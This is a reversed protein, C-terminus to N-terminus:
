LVETEGAQVDIVEVESASVEYAIRPEQINNIIKNYQRSQLRGKIAIHTGTPYNSVEVANRSWFIVPLYDSKSFPRNVAICTDTLQRGLPTTRYIPERCIYGDLVIENRDVDETFKIYDAFVYLLVKHVGNVNEDYSRFSGTVEIAYGTLDKKTDIIKSSVVVPIIDINGSTREISLFFKFFKENKVTHDYTFNSSVTGILKVKNNIM